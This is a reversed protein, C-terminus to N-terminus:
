RVCFVLIRTRISQFGSVFDMPFSSRCEAPVPLPQLPARLSFKVEGASMIRMCSRVQARVSVPSTMFLRPEGHSINELSWSTWWCTRRYEYLIQLRLNGHNPVVIRPTDSAVASCKLLGNCVTYIYTSSRYVGSMQNLSKRSPQSLYKM